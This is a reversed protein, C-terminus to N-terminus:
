ICVFVFLCVYVYWCKLLRPCRPWLRERWSVMQIAINPFSLNKRQRWSCVTANVPLRLPPAYRPQFFRMAHQSLSYPYCCCCLLPTIRWPRISQQDQHIQSPSSWKWGALSFEIFSCKWSSTTSTGYYGVALLSSGTCLIRCPIRCNWFRWRTVDLAVTTSSNSDWTYDVLPLLFPIKRLWYIWNFFYTQLIYTMIGSALMGCKRRISGYFAATTPWSEQHWERSAEM